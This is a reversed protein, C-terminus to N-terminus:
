RVSRPLLSLRTGSIRKQFSLCSLSHCICSDLSSGLDLWESLDNVVVVDEWGSELHGSFESLTSVFELSDHSLVLHSVWLGALLESLLDLVDELLSEVVRFLIVLLLWSDVEEELLESESHM